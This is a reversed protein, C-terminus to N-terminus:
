QEGFYVKVLLDASEEYASQLNKLMEPNTKTEHHHRFASELLTQFTQLYGATERDIDSQHKIEMYYQEITQYFRKYKAEDYFNDRLHDLISEFEFCQEKISAELRVKNSSM